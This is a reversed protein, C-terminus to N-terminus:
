GIFFAANSHSNAVADRLAEIVADARATLQPKGAAAFQESASTLESMIETAEDTGFEAGVQFRQLWKTGFLDAVPLWEAAYIAETAIPVLRAPSDEGAPIQLAVSM